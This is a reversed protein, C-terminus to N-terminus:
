LAYGAAEADAYFMGVTELSYQNLNYGAMNHWKDVMSPTMTIIDAGAQRAQYYDFASRPSAWLIKVHPGCMRRAEHVIPKPDVGTDSIRGAFVSVISQATYRLAPVVHDMQGLTFVATVNVSIGDRSLDRIVEYTSEGRTNTIPIKVFVRPSWSAIIRAQRDMGELDDAFVELSLPKQTTAIAQHAFDAYDTVGALRCLTPNTTFGTVHDVRAFRTIEGLNGSDVFVRM